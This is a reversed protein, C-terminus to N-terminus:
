DAQRKTGPAPVLWGPRDACGGRLGQRGLGGVGQARAGQDSTNGGATRTPGSYHILPRSARVTFNQDRNRWAERWPVLTEPTTRTANEVLPLKAPLLIRRGEPRVSLSMETATKEVGGTEVRLADSKTATKEM